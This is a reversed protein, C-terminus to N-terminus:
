NGERIMELLAGEMKKKDQLRRYCKREVPSGEIHIIFQTQRQGPRTIRGNAQSYTEQSTVASYWVITSAATLTLGHSMAAPQAVLIRPSGQTQFARFIEGRKTASVDGSIVAVDGVGYEAALEDAVYRLVNKYPVFIIVKSGAQEIVEKVADIRPKNPLVFEEGGKGYVVGCAIQILKSMKVAENVALVQGGEAMEAALKAMMDRYAKAQEPTLEVERDQYIAPPLDICDERKFRISPQMADAVIETADARPLWKFQGFQQMVQDRFGSFYTPVREPSLLKIQAWADTPSNPTPTGTLGWVRPCKAIIRKLCKYLQAQANRFTAIEDVVILNIVGKAVLDTLEKELVKIGHHNILLIDAGANLRKLRLDKAGHLIAVSTEPFNQFVEDAWTRELTSLPSIVLTVNVLGQRALFDRAWLASLTKGTGLDNLVFAKPHLTLFEATEKQAFFPDKIKPHRPYDYLYKLPSPARIGLNRLVRVEDLRFPVAVYRAGDMEFPKATPIVSTVRAPDKLKLVIKKTGKHILM